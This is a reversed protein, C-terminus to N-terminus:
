STTPSASCNPRTRRWCRSIAAARAIGAMAMRREIRRRLTGEKYLSFDHSTNKRLLDIIQTLGVDASQPAHDERYRHGGHQALAQPIKALPLVLDVAGTAIANRPMGDYEAEDPDQAIVLGGAQKVARAGDSGDAGTGSLVICVTREGFEAALSRLLIDFPMRVHQGRTPRSLHFTGNRVALFRGPPIIYLRDPELRM